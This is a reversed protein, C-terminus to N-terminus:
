PNQSTYYLFFSGGEGIEASYIILQITDKWLTIYFWMKLTMSLMCNLRRTLHTHTCFGLDGVLKELSLLSQKKLADWINLFLNGWGKAEFATGMLGSWPCDIGMFCNSLHEDELFCSWLAPWETSVETARFSPTPNVFVPKWSCLFVVRNQNAIAENVFDRIVIEM